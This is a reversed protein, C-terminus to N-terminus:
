NTRNDYLNQYEKLLNTKARELESETFGMKMRQCEHGLLEVTPLVKSADKPRAYNQWADNGQSIYYNGDYGYSFVFPCQPNQAIDQLRDNCMGVVLSKALDFQFYQLTQKYEKYIKM